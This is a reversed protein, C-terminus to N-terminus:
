AYNRKNKGFPRSPSQRLPTRKQPGFRTSKFYSNGLIVGSVREAARWRISNFFFHFNDIIALLINKKM